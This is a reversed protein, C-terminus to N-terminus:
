AAWKNVMMVPTREDKDTRIEASPLITLVPCPAKRVVHETTSGGFLRKLRSAHSTMVIVDCREEKAVAVIDDVVNGLRILPSMKVTKLLDHGLKQRLFDNLVVTKSQFLNELNPQHMVPIPAEAPSMVGSAVYCDSLQGKTSKPALTHLVIVEASHDKALSAAYAAAPVSENSFDTPVLIKKITIM